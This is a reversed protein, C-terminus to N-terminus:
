KKACVPVAHTHPVPLAHMEAFNAITKIQKCTEAIVLVAHKKPQALMTADEAIIM